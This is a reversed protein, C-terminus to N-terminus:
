PPLDATVFNGADVWGDNAYILYVIARLTRQSRNAEGRHIVGYDYLLADGADLAGPVTAWPTAEPLDHALQLDQHGRHSGPWFTTYGTLEDLDVLPLFACLANPVAPWADAWAGGALPHSSDAHWPQQPAGPLSFVVGRKALTCGDGLLDNAASLWPAAAPTEAASRTAGRRPDAFAFLDDDDPLSADYRGEARRMVTSFRHPTGPPLKALRDRIKSVHDLVPGRIAELASPTLADQLVGFGLTRVLRALGAPSEATADRLTAASSLPVACDYVLSSVCSQKGVDGVLRAVRADVDGDAAEFDVALEEVFGGSRARTVRLARIMLIVAGPDDDDDGEEKALSAWSLPKRGGLSSRHCRLYLCRRKVEPDSFLDGLGDDGM